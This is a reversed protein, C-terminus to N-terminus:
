EIPLGVIRVVDSVNVSRLLQSAEGALGCAWSQREFIARGPQEAPRSLRECELRPLTAARRLSEILRGADCGAGGTHDPL